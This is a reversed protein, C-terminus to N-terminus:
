QGLRTLGPAIPYLGARAAQREAKLMRDHNVYMERGIDLIQSRALMLDNGPAAKGLRAKAADLRAELTARRFPELHFFGDGELNFRCTRTQRVTRDHADLATFALTVTTEDVLPEAARAFSQPARLSAKVMMECTLVAPDDASLAPLALTAALVLLALPM